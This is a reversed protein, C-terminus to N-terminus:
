QERSSEAQLRELVRLVGLLESRIMGNRDVDETGARPTRVVESLTAAYVHAVEPELKLFRALVVELVLRFDCEPIPAPGKDREWQPGIGTLLWDFNIGYIKCASEADAM